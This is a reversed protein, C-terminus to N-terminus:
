GPLTESPMAASGSVVASPRTIESLMARLLQMIETFSFDAQRSVRVEGELPASEQEISRVSVIIIHMDALAADNAVEALFAYGDVEPMVLDLLVVDPRESRAIELGEKGSFAELVRLAPNNVKLM